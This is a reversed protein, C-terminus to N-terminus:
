TNGMVVVKEYGSLSGQHVRSARVCGRLLVGSPLDLAPPCGKNLEKASFHICM